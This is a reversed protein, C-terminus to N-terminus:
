AAANSNPATPVAGAREVCKVAGVLEDIGATTPNCRESLYRRWQRAGPQGQFLYHLPKALHRLYTGAALEQEAYACYRNFVTFRDQPPSDSGFFARDVGALLFPNEYAARGLMVGDVPRGTEAANDLTELGGNIVITLHPFDAKLRHVVDYRLPPIERNERPSLGDLWAKRAHVILVECGAADLTAVFGLLEDYSDSRDIGIRTKVTVPVDVAQQMAEVCAAVLAPEAMLCAGFKGSQVRDSPCGVNLNIECYGAAEGLKAAQALLAPDSGGLQLAVPHEAPSHRLFREADGYILADCVVMETYLRANVSLIRALMRFHRDTYQMMPAVCFQWPSHPTASQKLDIV